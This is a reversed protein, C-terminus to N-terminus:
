LKCDPASWPKPVCISEDCGRRIIAAPMIPL